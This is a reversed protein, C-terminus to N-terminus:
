EGYEKLIEIIRKRADPSRLLAGMVDEIDTRGVVGSVSNFCRVIDMMFASHRSSHDIGASDRFFSVERKIERISMGETEKNKFMPKNCDRIFMPATFKASIDRLKADYDADRKRITDARRVGHLVTTHDVGFFSAVEPYSKGLTNHCVHYAAFRPWSVRRSRDPKYMTGPQLGFEAEAEAVVDAMRRRPEITM